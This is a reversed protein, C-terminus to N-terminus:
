GVFKHIRIILGVLRSAGWPLSEQIFSENLPKMQDTVM